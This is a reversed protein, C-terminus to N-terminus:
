ENSIVAVSKASLEEFCFIEILMMSTLSLLGIKVDLSENKISSPILATAVRVPESASPSETLKLVVKAPASAASKVKLEDPARAKAAVGFKSAGASASVFLM